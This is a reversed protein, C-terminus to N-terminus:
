WEKEKKLAEKAERKFQEALKWYVDARLNKRFWEDTMIHTIDKVQTRKEIIYKFAKEKKIKKHYKYPYDEWRIVYNKGNDEINFPFCLQPANALQEISHCELSDRATEDEDVLIYDTALMYTEKKSNDNLILTWTVYKKIVKM